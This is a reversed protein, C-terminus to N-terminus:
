PYVKTYIISTHTQLPHTLTEMQFQQEMEVPSIVTFTRRANKVPLDRGFTARGIDKLNLVLRQGGSDIFGEEVTTFGNNMVTSLAIQSQGRGTLFGHESHLDDKTNLGYAFATYNVVPPSIPSYDGVSFDVIEGYTFVPITPFRAKGGFDSRWKGLLFGLPALDPPLARPDYKKDIQAFSVDLPDRAQSSCRGCSILCHTLFRLQRGSRQLVWSAGM